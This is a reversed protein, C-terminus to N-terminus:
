YNESEVALVHKNREKKFSDHYIASSVSWLILDFCVLHICREAIWERFKVRASGINSDCQPLGNQKRGARIKKIAYNCHKDKLYLMSDNLQLIKIVIQWRIECM